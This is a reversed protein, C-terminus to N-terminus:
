ARQRRSTTFDMVIPWDSRRLNTWPYFLRKWHRHRCELLSLFRAVRNELLGEVVDRGRCEGCERIFYHLLLLCISMVTLHM